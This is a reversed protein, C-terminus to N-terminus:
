AVTVDITHHGTAGDPMPPSPESEQFVGDGDAARVRLVHDGPRADWRFLWQRWASESLADALEAARWVGDVEVEVASVGGEGAWAVGAVVTPGAPLEARASPVDIRSQTKIPAERAWGRPVWYADFADFTTLEVEALWKTDSVYGYLGAVVLRVPFGHRDPLPEGNMGVAVVAPRGDFVAEVPFGATWGDVARGVVQDAGEQVGARELVDALPVGLWRATGVLDGGVENSVCALTVDVETDAADLLEAYTLTFPRDVMGTVRVVHTAPDIRPVSFATDIRYFRDNPTLLPSIGDVDFSAGPVPPDLAYRPTPLAFDQRAADAAARQLLLRSSGGLLVAAGAASAVWGLFVRRSHTGVRSVQAPRREPDAATAERGGVAGVTRLAPPSVALLGRLTLLGAAAGVFPALAASVAPVLPDALGAAMGLVAFAGFVLAPVLRLRRAAAIGTFAGVAAVVLAMSTFLVLRNAAGFLGISAEVLPGPASEIVGDGVAAFLSKTGPLLAATLEAVTVAVAAASVGALPAAWRASMPTQSDKL